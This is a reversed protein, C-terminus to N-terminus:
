AQSGQLLWHQRSCAGKLDLCSGWVLLAAEPSTWASFTVARPGAGGQERRAWSGRWDLGTQGRIEQLKQAPTLELERDLERKIM